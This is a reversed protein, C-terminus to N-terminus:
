RQCAIKAWGVCYRPCSLRACSWRDHRCCPYAPASGCCVPGRLTNSDVIPSQEKHQVISSKRALQSTRTFRCIKTSKPDALGVRPHPKPKPHRLISSCPTKDKPSITKGGANQRPKSEWREIHLSRELATAPVAHNCCRHRQM